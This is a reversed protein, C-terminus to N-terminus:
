EIMLFSPNMCLIILFERKFNPEADNIPWEKSSDSTKIM